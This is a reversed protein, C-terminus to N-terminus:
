ARITRAAAVREWEAAPLSAAGPEFGHSPDGHFDSGGTALLQLDRAIRQYRAIAAADHDSHYVEIADLGADGLPAIRADIRTRGPHALSALGGAAHIIAIV